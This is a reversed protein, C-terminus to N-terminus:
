NTKIHNEEELTVERNFCTYKSKEIQRKMEIAIGNVVCRVQMM